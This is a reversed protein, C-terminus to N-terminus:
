IVIESVFAEAYQIVKGSQSARFSLRGLTREKQFAPPKEPYMMRFANELLFTKKEAFSKGSKFLRNHLRLDKNSIRSMNVLTNPKFPTRRFDKIEYELIDSKRFANSVAKATLIHDEHQDDHRPIFVLEADGMEEHIKNIEVTLETFKKTFERDQFNYGLFKHKFGLQNCLKNIDKELNDLELGKLDYIGFYPYPYNNCITLCHIEADYIEELQMLTGSCGLWIDDFHSGVALVKLNSGFNITGTIKYPWHRPAAMFADKKVETSKALYGSNKSIDEELQPLNIIISTGSHGLTCKRPVPRDNHIAKYPSYVESPAIHSGNSYFIIWKNCNAISKLKAPLLDSNNRAVVILYDIEGRISKEIDDIRNPLADSCILVSFDGFGTNNFVHIIKNEYSDLYKEESPAPELKHQYIIQSKPRFIPCVSEIRSGNRYKVKRYYSGGVVITKKNKLDLSRQVETEFSKSFSFEPLIIITGNGINKDIFELLKKKHKKFDKHGENIFGRIGKIGQKNKDWQILGDSPWLSKARWIVVKCKETLRYSWGIDENQLRM